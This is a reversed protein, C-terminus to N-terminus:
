SQNKKMSAVLESTAWYGVGVTGYFFAADIFEEGPASAFKRVIEVPNGFFYYAVSGGVALGGAAALYNKQEVDNMVASPWLVITTVGHTSNKIDSILNGM